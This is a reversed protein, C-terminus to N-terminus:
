WVLTIEGSYSHSDNNRVRIAGGAAVEVLLGCPCGIGGTGQIYFIFHGADSGIGDTVGNNGLCSDAGAWAAQGSKSFITAGGVCFGDAGM